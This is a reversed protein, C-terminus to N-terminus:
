NKNLEPVPDFNPYVYPTKPDPIKEVKTAHITFIDNGNYNGNEITGTVKVWTDKAFNNATPFETLVGYPSADASCCSVAFRGVIFQDTRLDKERYVFGTLEIKKGIFHEKFLDITSLVEMYIEPKVTILDRKYLIMGMKSFDENFEDPAKFMEQLQAETPPTKATNSSRATETVTTPKDSQAPALPSATSAPTPPVSLANNDPSGAADLQKNISKAAVSTSLNMGKKEALSSSMATSPLLFGLCLPFIFLSYAVTNKFRSTSPPHECGCSLEAKKGWISNIGLYVQYIAIAYLLVSSYKVYNQMHPAIYFILSDTKVLYVILMAFGLLIMARLFYHPTKIHSHEM